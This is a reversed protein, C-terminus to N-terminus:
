VLTVIIAMKAKLNFSESGTAREIRAEGSVLTRIAKRNLGTCAINQLRTNYTRWVVDIFRIESYPKSIDDGSECKCGVIKRQPVCIIRNTRDLSRLVVNRRSVSWHITVPFINSQGTDTVDYNKKMVTVGDVPYIISLLASKIKHSYSTRTQVGLTSLESRM